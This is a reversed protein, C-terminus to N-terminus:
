CWIWKLARNEDVSPQAKNVLRGRLCGRWESRNQPGASDMGLKKRHNLLVVMFDRFLGFNPWIRDRVALNVARGKLTQLFRWLSVIPSINHDCQAKTKSKIKKIRASLYSMCLFKSSNSWIRGSVVSIAALEIYLTKGSLPKM